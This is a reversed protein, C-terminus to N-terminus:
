LNSHIKMNFSHAEQQLESNHKANLGHMFASVPWFVKQYQNSIEWVTFKLNATQSKTGCIILYRQSKVALDLQFWSHFYIDTIMNQVVINGWVSSSDVKSKWEGDTLNQREMADDVGYGGWEQFM